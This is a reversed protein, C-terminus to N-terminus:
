EALTVLQPGPQILVPQLECTAPTRNVEALRLVPVLIEGSQVPRERQKLRRPRCIRVRHESIAARFRAPGIWTSALVVTRKAEIVGAPGPKQLAELPGLIERALPPELRGEVRM